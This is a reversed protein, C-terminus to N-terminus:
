DEKGACEPGIGAEISEPVTLKRGCRGCQGEHWFEMSDAFPEQREIRELFWRFGRVSDADFGLKAKRGHRYRFRYGSPDERILEGIYQYSSTNDSGTLVSVFYFNRNQNNTSWNQERDKAASKVRYTFRRGTKKSVLTFTANGAFLYKRIAERGRIQGYAYNDPHTTAMEGTGKVNDARAGNMDKLVASMHLGM